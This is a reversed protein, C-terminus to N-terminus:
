ISRRVLTEALGVRSRGNLGRVKEGGEQCM